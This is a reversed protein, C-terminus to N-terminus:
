SLEKMYRDMVMKNELRGTVTTDKAMLKICKDKVINKTM